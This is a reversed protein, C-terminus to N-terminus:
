SARAAIEAGLLVRPVLSMQVEADGPWVFLRSRGKFGVSWSCVSQVKGPLVRAVAETTALACFMSSRPWTWAIISARAAVVIRGGYRVGFDGRERGYVRYAAEVEWTAPVGM